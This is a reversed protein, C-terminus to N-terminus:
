ISSVGTKPKVSLSATSNILPSFPSGIVIVIETFFSNYYGVSDNQTSFGGTAVTTMAHCIADFVSLGSLYLLFFIIITFVIYIFGLIKALEKSRYHLSLPKESWDQTFLKIGGINFIPIIAIAFIIIGLGGIWQLMARWLLISKSTNDLNQIITAGTTTLGSMSEFFSNIFSLNTTGLYFPIAGILTLVVWSILTLLFASLVEVDRNKNKFIFSINLGTFLCLISIVFFVVWDTGNNILDFIGPIFTYLSFFILLNGIIFLSSKLDNM